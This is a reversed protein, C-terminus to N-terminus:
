KISLTNMKRGIFNMKEPESFSIRRRALEPPVNQQQLFEAIRSFQPRARPQNNWCDKILQKFSEPCQLHAVSEQRGKGIMWIISHTPFNLPWRGTLIEFLITSYAYVNSWESNKEEPSLVCGKRSLTRMLEPALYTLHGQPISAYGEREVRTTKNCYGSVCLKVKSELFVNMTTLAPLVIGKAHLYSMGQSIQKAISIKSQLSFLDQRVHLHNYLSLGRRVSTIVALNPPELCAGMFLVVNEHRIMSLVSVENLFEEVEEKTSRRRTHIMIDGHWRGKYVYGKPSVGVIEGFQLDSYPISWERLSKKIDEEDQKDGKLSKNVTPLPEHYRFAQFDDASFIRKNVRQKEQMRNKQPWTAFFDCPETLYEDGLDVDDTGIGLDADESFGNKEGSYDELTANLLKINSFDPTPSCSRHSNASSPCSTNASSYGSSYSCSASTSWSNAPHWNSSALLNKHVADDQDITTLNECIRSPYYREPSPHREVTVTLSTGQLEESNNPRFDLAHRPSYCFSEYLGNILKQRIKGKASLPLVTQQTGKRALHELNAHHLSWKGCVSQGKRWFRKARTKGANHKRCRRECEALLSTSCKQHYKLRCDQCCVGLFRIVKKCSDCQNRCLIKRSFSHADVQM